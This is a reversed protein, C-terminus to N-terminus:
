KPIHKDKYKRHNKHNDLFLERDSDSLGKLYDVRQEAWEKSSFEAKYILTFPDHSKTYKPGKGNNLAAIRENVDQTWGIYITGDNGKAVIAYYKGYM